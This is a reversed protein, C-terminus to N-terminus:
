SPSSTSTQVVRRALGRGTVAGRRRLTIWMALAVTTVVGVAADAAHPFFAYPVLWAVGWAPFALALPVLLLAYYHTWVMPSALLAATLAWAYAALDDGRVCAAIVLALVGAALAVLQNTALGLQAALAAVSVGDQDNLAAHRQMLSPYDLVGDFGIAAWGVVSFAGALAVSLGFARWRRTLALWGLLPWLFLKASLVLALVGAVPWLRDRWRWVLAVALVLMISVNAYLLGAVVPPSAFAAAYCRWDRVNCLWLSGFVACGLALVWLVAAVRYPPLSFPFTVLTAVPPYVTGGDHTDGDYVRMPSRGDAVARGPDWISTRFDEAVAAQGAARQIQGVSWAATVLVLSLILGLVASRVVWATRVNPTRDTRPAPQAIGV